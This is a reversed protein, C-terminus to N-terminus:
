EKLSGKDQMVSLDKLKKALQVVERMTNGKEFCAFAGLHMLQEAKSPSLKTTYVVVPISSYKPNKKLLELMEVAGLKPLTNDLVILSPLLDHEIQELYHLLGNGDIFKKVEPQFGIEMFAEDIIMRDDGDDDVLLISFRLGNKM